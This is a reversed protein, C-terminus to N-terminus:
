NLALRSIAIADRVESHNIRSYLADPSESVVPVSRGGKFSGNSNHSTLGSRQADQVRHWAMFVVRLCLRACHSTLSNFQSRKIFPLYTLRTSSRSLETLPEPNGETSEFVVYHRFSAGFGRETDSNQRIKFPSHILERFFM